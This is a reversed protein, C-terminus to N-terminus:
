IPNKFKQIASKIADRESLTYVADSSMYILISSFNACVYKNDSTNTYYHHRKPLIIIEKLYKSNYILEFGALDSWQPMIYIFKLSKSNTEAITLLHILRISLSLFISEIFPPNVHYCGSTFDTDPACFFNGKSGFEIDTNFMSYYNPLIHNFPSAFLETTCNLTVMLTHLVGSPVAWQLSPGDLIKYKTALLWISPIFSKRNGIYSNSLHTFTRNLLVIEYLKYSVDPCKSLPLIIHKGLRKSYQLTINSYDNATSICKEVFQVFVNYHITARHLSCGKDCLEKITQTDNKILYLENTSCFPDFGNQSYTIYWRAWIKYIEHTPLINAFTIFWKKIATIRRFPYKINSSITVTDDSLIVESM